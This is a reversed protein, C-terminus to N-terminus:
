KRPTILIQGLAEVDVPLEIDGAPLGNRSLLYSVVDVYAQISLSTPKGQPMTAATTAALDRVTGEAWREFFSSDFARRGALAPARGVGDDLFGGSLDDRHCYTCSQKYVQQGRKAQAATFVGSWVTRDARQGAAAVSMPTLPRWVSATGALALLLFFHSRTM